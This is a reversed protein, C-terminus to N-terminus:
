YSYYSEYHHGTVLVYSSRYYGLVENYLIVRKETGIVCVSVNLMELQRGIFDRKRKVVVDRQVQMVTELLGGTFM